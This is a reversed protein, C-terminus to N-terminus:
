GGIGGQPLIRDGLALQVKHLQSQEGWQWGWHTGNLCVVVRAMAQGMAMGAWEGTEVTM